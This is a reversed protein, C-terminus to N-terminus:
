RRRPVIKEGPRWQFPLKVNPLLDAHEEILREVPHLKTAARLDEATTHLYIQTSTLCRHGLLDRLTVLQVGRKIMHTAFTHRLRHPSVRREIRARRACTRVREYIATRSLSSGRRSRFFPALPTAEGRATRYERLAQAVKPSLALVRERGGKGLVRITNDELDVDREALGACESARIGTGYLLTLLAHDRLGLVTDRPPQALLTRSEEETLFVPLKVPAAKIKPFHALPNARAELYGMAVMARYWSRLIVVQRNVASAGNRREIRLYNVYELLDRATLEGPDRDSLRFRAYDRFTNLTAGYAAITKAALGRATCHQNLYVHQWHEWKV